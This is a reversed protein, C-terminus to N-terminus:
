KGGHCRKIWDDIQIFTTKNTLDSFISKPMAGYVIVVKPELEKLMSILGERFFFTNEEGQICGYTGISYIGGKEVGLFAFPLETPYFSHTFRCLFLLLNLTCVASLNLLATLM